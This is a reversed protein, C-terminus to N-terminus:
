VFKGSNILDIYKNKNGEQSGDYSAKKEELERKLREKRKKANISVLM